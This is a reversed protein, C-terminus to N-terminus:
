TSGEGRLVQASPAPAPRSMVGWVFGAASVVVALAVLWRPLRIGLITDLSFAGPGTLILALATAINIVPLEAGGKSAWIPKGWHTKATAMSMASIEAFLNHFIKLSLALVDM